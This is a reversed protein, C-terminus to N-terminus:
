RSNVMLKLENKIKKAVEGRWTTANSLFYRIISRADDFFYKSDITTLREMAELYPVAGYNVKNWDNRIDTAIENINRFNNM